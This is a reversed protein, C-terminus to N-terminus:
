FLLMSPTVIQKMGAAQLPTITLAHLYLLFLLCDGKTGECGSLITDGWHTEIAEKWCGSSGSASCGGGDWGDGQAGLVLTGRPSLSARSGLIM